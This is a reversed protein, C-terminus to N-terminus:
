DRVIWCVLLIVSREALDVNLKCISTSIWFYSRLSAVFSDGIAYQLLFFNGICYRSVIRGNSTKTKTKTMRHAPTAPRLETVDCDCDCVGEGDGVGRVRSSNGCSESSTILTSVLRVFIKKVAASLFLRNTLSRLTSSM